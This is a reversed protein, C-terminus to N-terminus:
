TVAGTTADNPSVWDTRVAVVASRVKPSQELVYEIEALEIRYGRVKVQTDIRGQFEVTGDPRYRALDGTRYLRESVGNAFTHNVFKEATLEPANLYGIALGDGAAYLEGSVGV